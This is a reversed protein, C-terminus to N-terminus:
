ADTGKGVGLAALLEAASAVVADALGLEGPKAYGWSVGVSAIGNARAANFDNATDGVMVCDAPSAGLERLVFALLRPKDMKGIAPDDMHMDSTYLREFVKDWGFKRSMASAGAWRKNTVIFVRRGSAKVRRVADLVGPYEATTPFGDGDYHEGFRRRLEAGLADTYADAFLIKAMAEITPGAVFLEDFRPCELKMDSMAAKWALRIDGDTDALTGDLDFFVIENSIKMYM